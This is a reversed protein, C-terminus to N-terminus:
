TLPHLACHRNSPQIDLFIGSIPFQPRSFRRYLQQFFPGKKNQEHSAEEKSGKVESQWRRRQAQVDEVSCVKAEVVMLIVIYFRFSGELSSLWYPLLRWPESGPWVNAINVCKWSCLPVVVAVFHRMLVLGQSPTVRPCARLMQPQVWGDGCCSVISYEFSFPAAM